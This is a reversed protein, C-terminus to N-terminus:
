LGEGDVACSSFYTQCTRDIYAPSNQEYFCASSKSPPEFTYYATGAKSKGSISIADDHLRSFSACSVSQHYWYGPGPLLLNERSFALKEQAAPAFTAYNCHPHFFLSTPMQRHVELLSRVQLPIEPGRCSVCM